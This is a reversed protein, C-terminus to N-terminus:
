SLRHEWLFDIIARSGNTSFFPMHLNNVLDLFRTKYGLDLLMWLAVTGKCNNYRIVRTDDLRKPAFWTRAGPALWALTRTNSSSTHEEDISCQNHQIWWDITSSASAFTLKAGLYDGSGGAYPVMRDSLGHIHLFGPYHAHKNNVPAKLDRSGTPIAHKSDSAPAHFSTDTIPTGALSVFAAAIHPHEAMVAHAAFAGSSFGFIYVRRHDIASGFKKKAADILAPIFEVDNEIQIKKKDDVVQKNHENVFERQESLWSREPLPNWARKNKEDLGANPMLLIFEKGPRHQAQPLGLYAATLLPDGGWPHLYVVLAPKIEASVRPYIYTGTRHAFGPVQFSGMDIGHRKRTYVSRGCITGQTSSEIDAHAALCNLFIFFLFPFNFNKM